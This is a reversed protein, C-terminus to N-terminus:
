GSLDVDSPQVPIALQEVLLCQNRAGWALYPGNVPDIKSVNTDITMAIQDAICAKIASQGDIIKIDIM